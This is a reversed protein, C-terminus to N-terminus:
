RRAAAGCQRRFSLQSLAIARREPRWQGSQAAGTAAAVTSVANSQGYFLNLTAHEQASLDAISLNFYNRTAAKHDWGSDLRVTGNGVTAVEQFFMDVNPWVPDVAGGYLTGDPSRRPSIKALGMAFSSLDQVKFLRRLEEDFRAVREYYSMGMLYVLSGQYVDVSVQSAALANTSLMQEMNWLEQAHVRLMAPTVRGADFCIAAVDGKRLPREALVERSASLDLFGRDPDLATEWAPARQRRHRLRLKLQDDTGDLTLTLVQKNTLTPDSSSFSGQGTANPRFPGLM